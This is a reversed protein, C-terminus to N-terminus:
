ITIGVAVKFYHSETGKSHRWVGHHMDYGFNISYRSIDLGIAPNININMGTNCVDFDVGGKLSVYPSALTNCFNYKVDAFVPIYYTPLTEYDPLCEAYFGAGGGVYLGNGFSYGHSSSFEWITPISCSLEIDFRYGGHEFVGEKADVTVGSYNGVHEHSGSAINFLSTKGCNPNGVLAVRIVKRREEALTGMERELWTEDGAELAPLLERASLLEKAETESIVEIKAAEERRLSIKYGIIEYEIPDRLPANLIVKVKNGKVFGMEIIRKRFSGHGNVKVIVGREGTRLESLKM